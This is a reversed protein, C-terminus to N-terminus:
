IDQQAGNDKSTFSGLYTFNGVFELPECNLTVPATPSTNNSMVQTKTTSITFETQKSYSDLSDSKEQLHDLKVSIFALDAAFDLDELLSFLTWQIGLPQLKGCLATSLSWSSFPRSSVAKDSPVM